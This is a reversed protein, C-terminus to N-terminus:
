TWDLPREDWLFGITAFSAFFTEIMVIMDEEEEEL